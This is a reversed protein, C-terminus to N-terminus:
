RGEASSLNSTVLGLKWITGDDRHCIFNYLTNKEIFPFPCADDDTLVWGGPNEIFPGTPSGSAYAEVAWPKENCETLLWYTGDAFFMSPAAITKPSRKLLVKSVSKKLDEPTMAEKIRIESINEKERKYLLYIKASNPDVFLFPNRTAEGKIAETLNTFLLFRIGDTSKRLVISSDGGFMITHAMYFYGDKFFVSPWRSRKGTIIPNNKYPEWTLLDESFRLDINGGNAEGVYGWYTHGNYKGTPNPRVVALTHPSSKGSHQTEDLIIGKNIQQYYKPLTEKKLFQYEGKNNNDIDLQIFSTGKKWDITSFEGFVERGRGVQIDVMGSNNTNTDHVERYVATESSNNKFIEVKLSIKQNELIVNEPNKIESQYKFGQTNQGYASVIM